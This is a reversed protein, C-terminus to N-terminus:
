GGLGNCTDIIVDRLADPDDVDSVLYMPKGKPYPIAEEMEYKKNTEVKKVLLRDDYIGGFIIGNRYLIYEGMMPRCTIGDVLRLQDMIFEKYDKTSAM